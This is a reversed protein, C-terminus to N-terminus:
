KGKSKKCNCSCGCGEALAEVLEHLGDVQAALEGVEFDNM